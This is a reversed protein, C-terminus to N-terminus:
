NSGGYCAEMNMQRKVRMKMNEYDQMAEQHLAQFRDTKHYIISDIGGDSYQMEGRLEKKKTLDFAKAIAGKLLVTRYPFTYVDFQRFRFVPPSDNFDDVAYQICKELDQNCLYEIGLPINTDMFDQLHDRLEDPSIVPNQPANIPTAM